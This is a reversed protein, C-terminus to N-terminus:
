ELTYFFGGWTNEVQSPSIDATGSLKCDGKHSGRLSWCAKDKLAPIRTIRSFEKLDGARFLDTNKPFYFRQNEGKMLERCIRDDWWKTM